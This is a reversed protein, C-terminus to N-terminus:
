KEVKHYVGSISPISPKVSPKLSLTDVTSCGAALCIFLLISCRIITKFLPLKLRPVPISGAVILKPLQCEVMSNGECFARLMKIKM